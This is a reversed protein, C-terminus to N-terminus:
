LPGVPGKSVPPRVIPVERRQLSRFVLYLWWALATAVLDSGLTFWWVKWPALPISAIEPLFVVSRVTWLLLVGAVGRLLVAVVDHRRGQYSLLFMVVPPLRAAAAGAILLVLLLRM